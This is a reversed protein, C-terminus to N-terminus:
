IRNKFFEPFRRVPSLFNARQTEIPPQICVILLLEMVTTDNVRFSCICIQLGKLKPYQLHLFAVLRKYKKYFANFIQDVFTKNWRMKTINLCLM